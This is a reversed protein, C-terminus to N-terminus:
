TTAYCASWVADVTGRCWSDRTYITFCLPQRVTYRVHIPKTHSPIARPQPSTPALDRILM